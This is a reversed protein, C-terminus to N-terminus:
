ASISTRTLNINMRVGSFKLSNNRLEISKKMSADEKQKYTLYFIDGRFKGANYSDTNKDIIQALEQVWEYDDMEGLNIVIYKLWTDMNSNPLVKRKIKGNRM